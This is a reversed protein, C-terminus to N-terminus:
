EKKSYGLGLEPYQAPVRDLLPNLASIDLPFPKGLWAARDTHDLVERRTLPHILVSLDGRHQVFYSYTRSFSERPCWVEYSGVVHPGRPVDNYTELPTAWFYKESRLRLIDERLAMAEARSEANSQLFYVHFHFEKIEGHGDLDDVAAPNHMIHYLLILIHTLYAFSHNTCTLRAKLFTVHPGHGPGRIAYAATIPAQARWCLKNNLSASPVFGACPPAHTSTM